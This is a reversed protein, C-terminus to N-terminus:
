TNNFLLFRNGEADAALCREDEGCITEWLSGTEAAEAKVPPLGASLLLLVSLILSYLRFVTKM